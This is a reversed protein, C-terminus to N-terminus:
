TIPAVPIDQVASLLEPHMVLVQDGETGAGGVSALLGTALDKEGGISKGPLDCGIAEALARGLKAYQLNASKYGAYGAADALDETSLGEAGAAAHARLMALQGGHPKVISLGDAFEEKTPVDLALLDDHRRDSLSKAATEDLQQKLQEIADEVTSATAEAVTGQAGGTLFARATPVKNLVAARLTHRGHTLATTKLAPTKNPKNM